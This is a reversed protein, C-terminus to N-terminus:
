RQTSLIQHNERAYKLEKKGYEKGYILLEDKQYYDLIIGM